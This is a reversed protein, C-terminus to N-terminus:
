ASRCAVIFLRRFPFLTRGDARRPYAARLRQGYDAEFAAVEDPELAARVPRLATGRTWALVPDDGDLVHLYETEWIDLGAASPALLDYYCAPSGVPERPLAPELREAWPEAAALERLLVHSPAGFNRPMQVALVGGSAVHGFLRPLLEAHGPLWQLAANSFLLDFPLAPTWDALDAQLWNARIGSARAKALMAASSDIGTVAADPWREVLLATSNGPGCGLDAIRAPARLPIRALLDIAPRTRLDGFSLYLEPNWTV